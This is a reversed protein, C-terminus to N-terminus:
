RGATPDVSIFLGRLVMSQATMIATEVPRTPDWWETAWNLAGIVLMRSISQDIGPRLLGLTHAEALLDRWVDHFAESDDELEIQIHTPLQGSNRTVARAFDSLELEIRLHAEIAAAVRQSVTAGSPLALLQDCVHQRVLQQGHRMVAAILADRSDFYHYIAPPQLRAIAAIDALYTRAYGQGSLAAAAAALIRDRTGPTPEATQSM